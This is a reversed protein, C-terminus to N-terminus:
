PFNRRKTDRAALFRAVGLLLVMVILGAVLAQLGDRLNKGLGDAFRWKHLWAFSYGEIRRSTTTLNALTDTATEVYATPSGPLDFHVAHVPLRKNIFGYEGQIFGTVLETTTV